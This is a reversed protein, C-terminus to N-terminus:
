SISLYQLKYNAFILILKGELFNHWTVKQAEILKQPM